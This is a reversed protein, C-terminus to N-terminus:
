RYVCAIADGFLVVYSGLERNRRTEDEGKEKMVKCFFM